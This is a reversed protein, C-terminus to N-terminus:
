RKGAIKLRQTKSMQRLLLAAQECDTHGSKRAEEICFDIDKDRINQDDLAIHLCCGVEHRSYIQKVFPIVELISPKM